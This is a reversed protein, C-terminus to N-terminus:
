ARGRFHGLDEVLAQGDSSISFAAHHRSIKPDKVAIDCDESRGFLFKGEPKLRFTKGMHEGVLCVLCPRRKLKGGPEYAVRAVSTTEKESKPAM